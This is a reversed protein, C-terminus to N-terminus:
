ELRPMTILVAADSVGCLSGTATRPGAASTSSGQGGFLPFRRAVDRLNATRVLWVEVDMDPLHGLTGRPFVSIARGGDPSVHPFWDTAEPQGLCYWTMPFVSSRRVNLRLSPLWGSLSISVLHRM